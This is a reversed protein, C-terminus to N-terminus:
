DFTRSSGFIKRLQPLVDGLWVEYGAYSPHLRDGLLKENVVGDPWLFADNINRFIFQRGDCLKELGENVKENRVMCPDTVGKGRPFLAYVLVTAQPQTRRLEDIIAKLGKVTDEPPEAKVSRKGANNTGILLVIAKPHVKGLSHRMRFLLNDTTDGEIGFNLGLYPAGAEKGGFWKRWLPQNEKNEFYHTISDGLWVVDADSKEKAENDRYELAKQWWHKPDESGAKPKDSITVHGEEPASAVTGDDKLWAATRSYFYGWEGHPMAFGTMIKKDKVPIQNYATWVCHPHCASDATGCTVTVPVRIRQAFNVGDYYPANREVTVRGAATTQEDLFQPWGDFRGARHSSHDTLAPVHFAGKTFHRNLGVCYLGFGGGQSTGDYVFRSPDADERAAVWDIARDIGLLVPYFYFDRPDDSTIGATCYRSSGWKAKCAENLRDYAPKQTEADPPFPFVTMFLNLYGPTKRPNQSWGGFGAAAVQVIVPLKGRAGKEKALWGYVRRGDLTAFSVGWVDWKADSWKTSPEVKADLPVKTVEERGKAWFADFDEPCPAAPRLKEPEFGVAAFWEDKRYQTAPFGALDSRLVLRLFGPEALSGSVTFPNGKALDVVNTPAIIRSGFNDLVTTVKGAKLPVGNTDTVKVIFTATEGCAYMAQPCDPRVELVLKEAASAAASLALSLLVSGIIKKM